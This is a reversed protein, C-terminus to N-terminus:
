TGVELAHLRSAGSLSLGGRNAGKGLRRGQATIGSPRLSRPAKERIENVCFNIERKSISHRRQRFKMWHLKKWLQTGTMTAVCTVTRTHTSLPPQPLAM